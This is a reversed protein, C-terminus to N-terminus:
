IIEILKIIYKDRIEYKKNFLEDIILKNGKKVHFILNKIQDNKLLTDKCIDVFKNLGQILTIVSLNNNQFELVKQQFLKFENMFSYNDLQFIFGQKIKKKIPNKFLYYFHLIQTLYLFLYNLIPHYIILLIILLIQFHM